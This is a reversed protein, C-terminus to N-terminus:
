WVYRQLLGLLFCTAESSSLWSSSRLARQRGDLAYAVACSAAAGCSSHRLMCRVVWAM